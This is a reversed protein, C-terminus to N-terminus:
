RVVRVARAHFELQMSDKLAAFISAFSSMTPNGASSLMRYPSKSLAISGPM